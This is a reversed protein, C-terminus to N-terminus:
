SREQPHPPYDHGANHILSHAASLHTYTAARIALSRACLATTPDSSRMAEVLRHFSDPDTEHGSIRATALLQQWITDTRSGYLRQLAAHADGLTPPALNYPGTAHSGPHVSRNAATM